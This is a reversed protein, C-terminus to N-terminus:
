VPLAAPTVPALITREMEVIAGGPERMGRRIMEIEFAGAPKRTIQYLAYGALDAGKHPIAASASPVGVVPIPGGPGELWRLQARHFHGHLVLGAGNERVTEEFAGADQLGTRWEQAYRHPPHHIAVVRLLTEREGEALRLRLSTVQGEGLRGSSVFPPTPVGSGLGILAIPGRRRVFPFPAANSIAGPEDGGFYASWRAYGPSSKSRVYADHNGPVATVHKPDGLGQLWALAAEHELPLGLNVLDGSVLVHDPRQARLDAVIADLVSRLHVHRRNRQWNAAGLLRKTNLERLSMRPVPPLHVDSLHALLITDLPM